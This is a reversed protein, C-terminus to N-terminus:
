KKKGNDEDPEATGYEEEVRSLLEEVDVGGRAAHPELAQVKAM